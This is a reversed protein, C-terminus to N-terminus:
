AVPPGSHEGGAPPAPVQRKGDETHETGADRNRVADRIDHLPHSSRVDPVLDFNHPPPPSLTFWELTAGGWPDHGEPRGNRSSIVANVLTMLIGAALIFAGISGLLNFGDLGIDGYFKYIDVVQGDLGALLLPVLMLQAGGLMTWFSLRGLSEGM